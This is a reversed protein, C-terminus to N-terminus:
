NLPAQCGREWSERRKTGERAKCSHKKTNIANVINGESQFKAEAKANIEKRPLIKGGIRTLKFGKVSVRSYSERRKPLFHLNLCSETM